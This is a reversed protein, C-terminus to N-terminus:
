AGKRESDSNLEQELAARYRRAKDSGCRAAAKIEKVTRGAKGSLVQARLELFKADARLDEPVAPLADPEPQEKAAEPALVAEPAPEVEPEPEPVPRVEAPEHGPERRPVPASASALPVPDAAVAMPEPAPAPEAAVLPAVAAALFGGGVALPPTKWAVRMVPAPERGPAPAPEPAPERDPPPAPEPASGPDPVSAAPVIEGAIQTRAIRPLAGAAYMFVVGVLGILGSRAAAALTLHESGLLTALTPRRAAELGALAAAMPEISTEVALAQRLAEAGAERSPALLSRSQSAANDRLGAATARRGDIARRLEAARSAQAGAAADASMALVVQSLTGAAVEAVLLVAGVALLVRRLALRPQLMGAIWSALLQAAALIVGAWTMVQLAAPDRETQQLALVMFRGGVISAGLGVAFAAASLAYGTWPRLHASTLRM